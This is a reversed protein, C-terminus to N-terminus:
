MRFYGNYNMRRQNLEDWFNTPLEEDCLIAAVTSGQLNMVDQTYYKFYISCGSNFHIASVARGAFELRWGWNPDKMMKGRPLM